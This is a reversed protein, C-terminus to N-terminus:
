RGGNQAPGNGVEEEDRLGKTLAKALIKEEFRRGGWELVGVLDRVQVGRGSAGDERLEGVKKWAGTSTMKEELPNRNGKASAAAVTDAASNSNPKTAGPGRGAAPGMGAGAGFSPTPSAAAATMWSYKKGGGLALNATTNAAARMVSESAKAEKAAKEREKKSMKVVPAIDTAAPTTGPTTSAAGDATASTIAADLSSDISTQRDRERAEKEKKRRKRAELRAREATQDAEGSTRLVTPYPSPFQVTEKPESTPPTPPLEPATKSRTGNTTPLSSDTDMPEVPHNNTNIVTPANEDEPTIVITSQFSIDPVRADKAPEPANPPKSIQGKGKISPPVVTFPSIASDPPASGTEWVSNYMAKTEVKITTREGSGDAIDAFDAPVVGRSHQRRSRAIAVADELTDRIYQKTSLSLLSLIDAIQSSEHIQSATHAQVIGVGEAGVVASGFFKPRDSQNLRGDTTYRVNNQYTLLQLRNRVNGVNLFPDRIHRAQEDAQHRSARQHQEKVLEEVSKQPIAPQSYPGVGQLAGYSGYHGQQWGGFSNNPSYTITSTSGFSTSQSSGFRYTSAMYNEEERLDIGSATVMDNLDNMDTDKKPREPPGMAGPVNKAGADQYSPQVPQPTNFTQLSAQESFSPYPITTSATYPSQAYPTGYQIPTPSLRQRKAPPEVPLSISSPRPLSISAPQGPTNM